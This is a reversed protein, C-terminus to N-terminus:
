FVGIKEGYITFFINECFLKATKKYLICTLKKVFNPDYGKKFFALKKATFPRFDSFSTIM